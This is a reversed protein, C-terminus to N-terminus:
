ERARAVMLFVDCQARREPLLPMIETQFVMRLTAAMTDARPVGKGLFGRLGRECAGWARHLLSRELAAVRNRLDRVAVADLSDLISQEWEGFIEFHPDLWSRFEDYEPEHLHFPNCVPPNAGTGQLRNPASIVLIAGPMAHGRLKAVFHAPDPLHEITELSVVLDFRGGEGDWVNADAAILRLGDRAYTTVGYDISSPDADVGVVHSAGLDRLMRSGYGVGCAIDLVRKGTAYRAALAYRQVHSQGYARWAETGPIIREDSM